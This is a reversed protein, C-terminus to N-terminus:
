QGHKPFLLHFHLRQIIEYVPFLRLVQHFIGSDLTTSPELIWITYMELKMDPAPHHQRLPFLSSGNLHELLPLAEQPSIYKSSFKSEM